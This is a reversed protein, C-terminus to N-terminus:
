SLYKKISIQEGKSAKRKHEDVMKEHWDRKRTLATDRAAGRMPVAVLNSMGIVGDGDMKSNKSMSQSMERHTKLNTMFRQLKTLTDTIHAAEGPEFTFEPDLAIQTLETTMQAWHSKVSANDFAPGLSRRHTPQSAEVDDQITPMDVDIETTQVDDPKCPINLAKFTWLNNEMLMAKVKPPCLQGNRGLACSCKVQTHDRDLACDELTELGSVNHVEGSYNVGYTVSFRTGEDDTTKKEVDKIGDITKADDLVRFMAKKVSATAMSTEAQCVKDCYRPIIEHQLHHILWDMRRSRIDGKGDATLRAKWRGHFSEISGTTEQMGYTLGSRFHRAWLKRHRGWHTELYNRFSRWTTWAADGFKKDIEKQKRDCFELVGTYAKDWADDDEFTEKVLKWLMKKIQGGEKQSIAISAKEGQKEALKSTINRNFAQFVHFQCWVVRAKPFVQKIANTEPWCCDVMFTSPCWTDGPYKRNIRDRIVQLCYVITEQREDSTIFFACPMYFGDPHRAILTFTSFKSRTINFTSDMQICRHNGYKWLLREQAPSMLVLIFPQYVVMQKEMCGQKIRVRPLKEPAGDRYFQKGLPSKVDVVQQLMTKENPSCAVHPRTTDIRDQIGMTLIEHVARRRKDAVSESTFVIGPPEADPSIRMSMCLDRSFAIVFMGCDSGNKQMMQKPLVKHVIKWASKPGVSIENAEGDACIWELLTDGVHRYEENFSDIIYIVHSQVDVVSCIWHKNGINIPIFVYNSELWAHTNRRGARSWMKVASYGEGNLKTFFFSNACRVVPAPLRELRAHRATYLNHKSMFFNIVEDNLWSNPRLTQLSRRTVTASFPVEIQAVLEFQPVDLFRGLADDIRDMDEKSLQVDFSKLKWAEPGGRLFRLSMELEIDETNEGTCSPVSMVSNDLKTNGHVSRLFDDTVKAMEEWYCPRMDLALKGGCRQPDDLLEMPKFKIVFSGAKEAIVRFLSKTENEHYRWKTGRINERINNITAVPINFDIDALFNDTERAYKHFQDEDKWGRVQMHYKKVRDRWCEQIKHATYTPHQAIMRQLQARTTRLMVVSQSRACAVSHSEAPDWSVRVLDGVSVTQPSVIRVVDSNLESFVYQKKCGCRKSSGVVRKTARKVTMATVQSVTLTCDDPGCECCYVSDVSCLRGDKYRRMREKCFRRGDQDWLGNVFDEVRSKEIWGYRAAKSRPWGTDETVASLDFPGPPPRSLTICVAVERKDKFRLFEGRIRVDVREVVGNVANEGGVSEGDVASSDRTTQVGSSVHLADGFPDDFPDDDRDDAM